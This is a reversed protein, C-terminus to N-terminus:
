KTTQLRIVNWSAPALTAEVHEGATRVAALPKPAVRDPNDKTNTAKLDVDVLQVAQKVALGGLGGGTLRLPLEEDLSRNLAFLTLTGAKDDHM